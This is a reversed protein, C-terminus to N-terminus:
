GERFVFRAMGIQVVDEHRLLRQRIAEANVRTGSKSDLDVLTYGKSDVTIQAHRAEVGPGGIRIENAADAGLSIPKPPLPIASRGAEPNQPVLRATRLSMTANPGFSPGKADAGPPPPVRPPEPMKLVQLIQTQAAAPEGAPPGSSPPSPPRPPPPPPASVGPDEAAPMEQTSSPGPTDMQLLEDESEFVELFRGRLAEGQKHAVAREALAAEIAKLRDKYEAEDFEGLKRRLEIEQRDLKVAEHADAIDALAGRLRAYSERAQQRLPEAKNEVMALQRAYDANVRSFVAPDFDAKVAELGTLRERLVDAEEKLAKLADIVGLDVEALSEPLDRTNVM